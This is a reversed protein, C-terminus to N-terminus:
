QNAVWNASLPNFGGGDGILCLVIGDPVGDPAGYMYPEGGSVTNEYPYSPQPNLGPKNEPMGGYTYFWGGFTLPLGWGTGKNQNGFLGEAGGYIGVPCGNIVANENWPPPLKFYVQAGNTYTHELRIVDYGDSRFSGYAGMIYTAPRSRFATDGPYGWGHGDPREMFKWGARYYFNGPWYTKLWGKGNPNRRGGFMYHVGVPDSDWSPFGLFSADPLTLSTDVLTRNPNRPGNSDKFFAPDTLGMGMLNGKYGFRPDGLGTVSDFTGEIIVRGEDVFPNSPYSNIYAYHILPDVVFDPFFTNGFKNLYQSSSPHEDKISHWVDWGQSDGGILFSPYYGRDVAYREVAIQITHLNAKAEVEKAKDKAKIYNPLAIAALIGIITITVLLEILTFGRQRM